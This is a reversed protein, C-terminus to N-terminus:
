VSCITPLTLHTYSVPGAMRPSAMPLSPKSALSVMCMLPPTLASPSSPGPQSFSGPATTSLRCLLMPM